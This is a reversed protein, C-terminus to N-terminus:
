IVSEIQLILGTDLHANQYAIAQVLHTLLTPVLQASHIQQAMVSAVAQIALVAALLRTTSGQLVAVPGQSAEWM